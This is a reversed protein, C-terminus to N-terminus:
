AEPSTSSTSAAMTAPASPLGTSGAGSPTASSGTSATSGSADIRDLRVSDLSLRIRELGLGLDVLDDAGLRVVELRIGIGVIDLGLRDRGGDRGRGLPPAVAALTAGRGFGDLRELRDLRLRDIVVCGAAVVVVLVLVFADVAFADVRVCGLDLVVPEALACAVERDCRVRM